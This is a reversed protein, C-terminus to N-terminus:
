LSLYYFLEQPSKRNTKKRGPYVLREQVVIPGGDVDETVFHVTCGSEKKGAKIVATHVELDMGGAFDPLLSPHVNMCRDQWQKCFPLSLIRMYGILLVLEVGAAELEKSVQADFDERSKGKSAISKFFVSVPDHSYHTETM